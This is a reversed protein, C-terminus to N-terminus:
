RTGPGEALRALKRMSAPLNARFAPRLVQAWIWALPGEVEIRHTLRTGMATPELAHHFRLQAFPLPTSDSFSHGEVMETITFVAVRGGTPKLEGSAGVKFEGGLKAWEIGEDWDKYGPVDMWLTWINGPLATTELTHQTIIM